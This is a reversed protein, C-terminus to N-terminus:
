AKILSAYQIISDVKNILFSLVGIVEQDSTPNSILQYGGVSASGGVVSGGVTPTSPQPSSAPNITQVPPTQMSKQVQTQTQTQAQAQTSQSIQQTQASTKQNQTSASQYTVMLNGGNKQVAVNFSVFSSDSRQYTM